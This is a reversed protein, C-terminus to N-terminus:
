LGLRKMLSKYSTSRKRSTKKRKSVNRRRRVVRRRPNKKRTTKKKSAAAAKAGKPVKVLKVGTLGRSRLENVKLKAAALDKFSHKRGSKTIVVYQGMGAKFWKPKVKYTTTIKVFRVSPNKKRRTTKRKKTAAHSKKASDPVWKGKVSKGKAPGSKITYGKRWKYKQGGVTKSAAKGKKFMWAPSKAKASKKKAPM